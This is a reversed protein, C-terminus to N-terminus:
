GYADGALCSAVGGDLWPIPGTSGRQWREEWMTSSPHPRGVPETNTAGLMALEKTSKRIPAVKNSSLEASASMGTPEEMPAAEETIVEKPASTGTPEETPAAEGMTSEWPVAGKLNADENLAVYEEM